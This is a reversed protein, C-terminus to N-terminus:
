HLNKLADPSLLQFEPIEVWHSKGHVDQMEYSGSMSGASTKLPCYSSYEFRGGPPIDPQEGVVGVGRVERKHGRADTIVWHRNILKLSEDGHNEIQVHYVFFFLDDGPDSQSPIYEPFVSILISSNKATGSM